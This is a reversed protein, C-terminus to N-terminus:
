QIPIGVLEGATKLTAKLRDLTSDTDFLNPQGQQCRTHDIRRFPEWESPMYRDFVICTSEHSGAKSLLANVARRAAENAGEM